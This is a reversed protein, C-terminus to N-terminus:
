QSRRWSSYPLAQGACCGEHGGSPCMLLPRMLPLSQALGLTHLVLSAAMFRREAPFTNGVLAV